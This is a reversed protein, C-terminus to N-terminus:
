RELEMGGRAAELAAHAVRTALELAKVLPGALPLWGAAQFARRLPEPLPAHAKVAKSATSAVDLGGGLVTKAAGLPSLTLIDQATGATTRLGTGALQVMSSFEQPVLGRAGSAATGAVGAGLVLGLRAGSAGLEQGAALLDKGSEKTLVKLSTGKTPLAGLLGLALKATAQGIHLGSRAAARAAELSAQLATRFVGGAVAIGVRASVRVFRPAGVRRLASDLVIGSGRGLVAGVRVGRQLATGLVVRSGRSVRDLTRAAMRRDLRRLAGTRRHACQQLEALHRACGRTGRAQYRADLARVELQYRREILRGALREFPLAAAWRGPGHVTKLVQSRHQDNRRQANITDLLQRRVELFRRHAEWDQIRTDQGLVERDWTRQLQGEPGLTRGRMPGQVAIHYHFRGEQEHIALVFPRGKAYAKALRLGTDLAAQRPDKPDQEQIARCEVESPAIVVEHYRAKPGGLTQIAEAPELRRGQPGVLLASERDHESGLYHARRNWAAPQKRGRFGPTFGPKLIPM